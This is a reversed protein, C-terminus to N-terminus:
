LTPANRRLALLLFLAKSSAPLPSLLYAASEDFQRFGLAKPLIARFRKARTIVKQLHSRTPFTSINRAIWVFQKNVYPIFYAKLLSCLSFDSHRFKTSNSACFMASMEGVIVAASITGSINEFVPFDLSARRRHRFPTAAKQPM